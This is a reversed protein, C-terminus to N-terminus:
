AVKLVKVKTKSHQVKRWDKTKAWLFVLQTRTLIITRGDVMICELESWDKDILKAFSEETFSITAEYKSKFQM